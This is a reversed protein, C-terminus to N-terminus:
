KDYGFTNYHILKQKSLNIGLIDTRNRRPLQSEGVQVIVNVLIEEPFHACFIPGLILQLDVHMWFGSLTHTDGLYLGYKLTKM